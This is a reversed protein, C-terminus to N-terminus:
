PCRYLELLELAPNSTNAPDYFRKPWPADVDLGRSEVMLTQLHSEPWGGGVQYLIGGRGGRRNCDLVAACRTEAALAGVLAIADAPEDRLIRLRWSALYRWHDAGLLTEVAFDEEHLEMLAATTAGTLPDGRYLGASAESPEGATMFSDRICM